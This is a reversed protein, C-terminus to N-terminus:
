RPHRAVYGINATAAVAIRRPHAHLALRGGTCTVGDRIRSPSASRLGANPKMYADDTTTDITNNTGNTYRGDNACSWPALSNALAASTPMMPPALTAPRIPRPLM